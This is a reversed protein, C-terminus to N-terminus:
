DVPDRMMRRRMADVKDHLDLAAAKRESYVLSDPYFEVDAVIGSRGLTRLLHRVFSIDGYYCADREEGGRVRYAIAAAAIELGKQIAPELLTPHFRLVESGDTSTGEPFLLVPVPADMAEAMEAAAADASTRSQRDLFITGGCRAFFGFAPWSKVERKSVFVCPAAAACVVIDLYSLHNACILGRAPRPGRCATGMGIRRLVLRCSRHLWDARDRLTIRSGRRLRLLAFRISIELLTCSLILLRLAARALSFPQGRGPTSLGSSDTAALRDDETLSAM